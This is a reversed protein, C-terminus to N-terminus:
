EPSGTGPPPHCPAQPRQQPGPTEQCGRHRTGARVVRLCGRRRTCGSSGREGGSVPSFVSASLAPSRGPHVTFSPPGPCGRRLTLVGETGQRGDAQGCACWGGPPRGGESAHGHAGAQGAQERPGCHRRDESAGPHRLSSGQCLRGARQGELHPEHGGATARPGTGEPETWLSALPDKLGQSRSSLRLTGSVSRLLLAAAGPCNSVTLQPWCRPTGARRGWPCSSGM